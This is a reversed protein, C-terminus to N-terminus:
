VNITMRKMFMGIYKHPNWSEIGNYTTSKLPAVLNAVFTDPGYRKEYRWMIHILNTSTVFIRQSMKIQWFNSYFCESPRTRHCHCCVKHVNLANIFKGSWITLIMAFPNPLMMLHRRYICIWTLIEMEIHFARHVCKNYVYNSM